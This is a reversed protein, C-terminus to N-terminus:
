AGMMAKSFDSQEIKSETYRSSAPLVGWYTRELWQSFVDGKIHDILMGLAVLVVALALSWGTLSLGLLMRAGGAAGFTAWGSIGAALLGVGGSLFLLSRLEEKQQRKATDADVFDMAASVGWVVANVVGVVRLAIDARAALREGALREAMATAYLNRWTGYAKVVTGVGVAISGVFMAGGLTERLDQQGTKQFSLAKKESELLAKWGAFKCMGDIMALAGASVTGVMPASLRARLLRYERVSGPSTVKEALLKVKKTPDSIAKLENELDDTIFVVMRSKAQGAAAVRKEFSALNGSAFSGVVQREAHTTLQRVQQAWLPKGEAKGADAVNDVFMQSLTKITERASGSIEVTGAPMKLAVGVVAMWRSLTKEVANGNYERLATSVQAGIQTLVNAVSDPVLKPGVLYNDPIQGTALNM